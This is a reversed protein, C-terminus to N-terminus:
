NWISRSLLIVGFFVLASGSIRHVWFMRQEDLHARLSKSLLIKMMDTMIITGLLGSFFVISQKLSYANPLVVSTMMYLWFFVTFPNVTNLIFGKGWLSAYTRATIEASQFRPPPTWLSVVGTTILIFAGVFGVTLTFMPWEVLGRWQSFFFYVSLIYILDSFWIGLGVTLGGRVGREVGAQILAVLLPGVLVSLFVGYEIGLWLPAM